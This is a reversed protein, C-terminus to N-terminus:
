QGTWSSFFLIFLIVAMGGVLTAFELLPRFRESWSPRAPYRLRTHTM